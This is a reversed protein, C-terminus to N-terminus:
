SAGGLMAHAVELLRLVQAAPDPIPRGYEVQLRIGDIEHNFVEIRVGFHEPAQYEVLTLRLARPAPKSGDDAALFWRRKSAPLNLRACLDDPEGRTWGEPLAAVVAAFWPPAGPPLDMPARAPTEARVRRIRAAACAHCEGDPSVESYPISAWEYLGCTDCAPGRDEDERVGLFRLTNDDPEPETDRRPYGLVAAEHEEAERIAVEYEGSMDPADGLDAAVKAAADTVSLAAVPRFGADPHNLIYWRSEAGM